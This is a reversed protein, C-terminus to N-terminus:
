ISPLEVIFTTSENLSSKAYIKGGHQQLITKAIALGLGHGGSKRSRSKDIRYFRHFIKNMYEQPIGECSNTVSLHLTNYHRKLSINIMRKSDTYKIANDLLIMVVQQLQECNGHTFLNPEISYDLSINNEFVVAEMTLIINEVAESLNFDTFVLKIDSYDVQTLYLLDKILSTMREAESKIYHLWKSQNKVDEEGSSLLVDLNTTIVALPTKLEHSADAIFQKQQEFAKKIPQISKNAFFRSIFFIVVLMICGVIFFTYILNALFDQQPTIDLFVIKYDDFHPKVVFRWYKGELKLSGTNSSQSLAANKAAEYFTEEMTFISSTDLLTGENDTILVFSVSPEPPPEGPDFDSSVRGGDFNRPGQPPKDNAKRNFESIRHLEMQINRYVNNHTIFYISSFALIMMISIIVLNLILFKNRLQQFM